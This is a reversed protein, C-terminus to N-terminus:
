WLQHLRAGVPLEPAVTPVDTVLNVSSLHDVGSVDEVYKIRQCHYCYSVGKKKKPLNVIERKSAVSLDKKGALVPSPNFSICLGETWDCM